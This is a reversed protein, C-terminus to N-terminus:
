GYLNAKKTRIFHNDGIVEGGVIDALIYPDFDDKIEILLTDDSYAEVFCKIGKIRVFKKSTCFVYGGGDYDSHCNVARNYATLTGQQMSRYTLNDMCIFESSRTEM